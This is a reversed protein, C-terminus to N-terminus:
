PEFVLVVETIFPNVLQDHLFSERGLLTHLIGKAHRSPPRARRFVTAAGPAVRPEHFRDAVGVMSPMFLLQFPHTALEIGLPKIPVRHVAFKPPHPNSLSSETRLELRFQM